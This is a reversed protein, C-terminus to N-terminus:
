HVCRICLCWKVCFCEVHWVHVSVGCMSVVCVYRVGCVYWVRVGCVCEYVVCMYMYASCM